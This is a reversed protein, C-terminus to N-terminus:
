NSCELSSFPNELPLSETVEEETKECSKQGEVAENDTPDMELAQNFAECAGETDGKALLSKGILTYAPAFTPDFSLSKEARLIAQDFRGKKFLIEAFKFNRQARARDGVKSRDPKVIAELEEDSIEGLLHRIRAKVLNSLNIKTFHQYYALKGDERVFGMSPTMRVGIEGYLSDNSDILVSGSIGTSEVSEQVLGPEAEDSVVFVWRVDRERFEKELRGLKELASISNDKSPKFFIFINVERTLDLLAESGGELTELTPNPVVDGVDINAFGWSMSLYLAVQVAFVSKFVKSM